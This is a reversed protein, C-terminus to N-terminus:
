AVLILETVKKFFKEYINPVHEPGSTMIQFVLVKFGIKLIEIGFLVHIEKFKGLFPFYIKVPQASSLMLIKEGCFPFSM